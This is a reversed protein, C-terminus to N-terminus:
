GVRRLSPDLIRAHACHTSSDELRNDVDLASITWIDCELFNCRIPNDPPTTAPAVLCFVM